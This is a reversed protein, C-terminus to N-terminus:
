EFSDFRETWHETLTQNISQTANGLANSINQGVESADDSLVKLAVDGVADIIDVLEAIGETV